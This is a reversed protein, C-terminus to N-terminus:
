SIHKRPGQFFFDNSINWRNDDNKKEREIEGERKNTYRSIASLLM